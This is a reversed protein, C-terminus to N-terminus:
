KSNQIEQEKALKTQQENIIGNILSNKLKVFSNYM